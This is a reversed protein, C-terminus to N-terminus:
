ESVGIEAVIGTCHFPLPDDHEIRVRSYREFGGNFDNEILGSRLAPSGGLLDSTDRYLIATMNDADPGVTGGLSNLVRVFINNIRKVRSQATGAKVGTEIDETELIATYGHGVCAKTTANALTVRGASSVTAAEVSGNNLIKVAQGRLHWLGSITTTASGSYSLHADLNTCDEKDDLDGFPKTMVEISRVPVGGVTRRVSLWVEDGDDGPLVCLTQLAADTGGLVHRHWAIIEQAREYTCGVLQGDMRRLWITSEPTLQYAVRDFGTGTVHESFITLDTSNFADNAYDYAFERLKRASNTVGGDRQPYLVTQNVRVPPADSTGYSTQPVAKFNSPTLAENLNSASIAFEGFSSGGSLVRGSVLWRFVDASGAAVRYVIADNDDAGDEFDEYAGSRSGWIVTPDSDSGALMLRQEYFAVARPYGRYSSWAGEEWFSTGGAVISAPMQYRVIVATAVTSSTVGTIRVVCYGPHLFNSDFHTGGGAVSGIVRIIGSQHSPVRNFKEWTTAGTLNSVGYIYGENTYVDGNALTKTSDGLAAGAIGVAGGTENLRWLSGVHGSAFVDGSALLTCTEGVVHTGFGTAAASFGSPTIILSETGNITRFPGTTISPESLSWSTHSTRTLKRLPHSKHTIFLTDNSQAFRLEQLESEAYTTALSVIEAATGGSVYADYGTSDVGQLEFTNTGASAVIFQRNNLETMGSVGSIVVRDGNSLGHSPATIGTPNAQTAGTITVPTQTIAGGDKFFWCYSPAFMVVYSQEVNYQFPVLIVDDDAIQEIIFRSGSRKRAGGHPVVTFNELVRCGSSFKKIDVRGDLRPSLEGGSFQSVLHTVQM